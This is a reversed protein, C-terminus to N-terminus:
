CHERFREERGGLMWDAGHGTHASQWAGEMELKGVLKM